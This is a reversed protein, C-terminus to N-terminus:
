KERYWYRYIEHFGLSDYLSEAVTNGVVVQLYAKHIDKKLAERLLGQVIARGYGNGRYLPNVVIDFIGMYGDEIVGYGCAVPKGELNIRVCIKDRIINSLMRRMVEIRQSDSMGACAILTNTWEESFDQEAAVEHPGTLNLGESIDAIRVATESLKKYGKQELIRDLDASYSDSTLKYVVPLKMSAYSQECFMIKEEIDLTSPYIPSISNARRTYGKSFRLVWGDYLDTQLSPWANMSREEMRRIM